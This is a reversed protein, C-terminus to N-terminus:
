SRWRGRVSMGASACSARGRPAVDFGWNKLFLKKFSFVNGSLTKAEEESGQAGGGVVTRRPLGCVELQHAHHAGEPRLLTKFSLLQRILAHQSSAFFRSVQLTEGRALALLSACIVSIAVRSGTTWTSLM